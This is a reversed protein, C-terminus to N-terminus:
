SELQLAIMGAGIVPENLPLSVVAAPAFSHIAKSIEDIM